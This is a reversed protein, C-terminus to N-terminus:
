VLCLIIALVFGLSILKKPLDTFFKSWFLHFSHEYSMILVPTEALNLCFGFCEVFIGKVSLFPFPFVLQALNKHVNTRFQSHLHFFGVILVWGM